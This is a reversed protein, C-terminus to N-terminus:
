IDVKLHPGIWSNVRKLDLHTASPSTLIELIIEIEFDRIAGQDSLHILQIELEDLSSIYQQHFEDFVPRVLDSTQLQATNM